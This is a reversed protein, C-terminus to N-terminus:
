RRQATEKVTSFFFQAFLIGGIHMLPSVLLQVSEETTDESMHGGLWAGAKGWAVFKFEGYCYNTIINNSAAQPTM